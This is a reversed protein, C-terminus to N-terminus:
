QVSKKPEVNKGPQMGLLGTMIVTDQAGIDGFVQIYESSRTGVSVRVQKAKGNDFVWVIQGEMDPVIAATPVKISNSSVGMNYKVNVFGGPVLGEQEKVIGRVTLMKTSENIMPDKAYVEGNIEPANLSDTAPVITFTQGKKVKHAFKQDVAFEVKLPDVQALTTIRDSPTVYAGKSIYRLGTVGAFPAVIRGKEIQVNMSQIQAELKEVQNVAQEYAEETGAESELLQKKRAKNKKALRLDVKLQEREAELVDTDISVLLQGQKVEAGEEFHIQEVIGSIEPYVDIKEFPATKGPISIINELNETECVFYDVRTFDLQEPNEKIGETESCSNLAFAAAVLTFTVIRKKTM